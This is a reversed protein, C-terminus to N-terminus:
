NKKHMLVATQINFNSEMKVTMLWSFRTPIVLLPLEDLKEAICNINTSHICEVFIVQIAPSGLPYVATLHVAADFGATLYVATM